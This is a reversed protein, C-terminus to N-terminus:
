CLKCSNLRPIMLKLHVCITRLNVYVMFMMFWGTSWPSELWDNLFILCSPINLLIRLPWWWTQWIISFHWHWVSHVVANHSLVPVPSTRTTNGTANVMGFKPKLLLHMPDLRSTPNVVDVFLVVINHRFSLPLFVQYQTVVTLSSGQSILPGIDSAVARRMCSGSPIKDESAIGGSRPHQGSPSVFNLVKM